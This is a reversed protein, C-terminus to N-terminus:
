TENAGTRFPCGNDSQGSFLSDSVAVCNRVCLARQECESCHSPISRMQELQLTLETADPQRYGYSFLNGCSLSRLNDCPSIRGDDHVFLRNVCAECGMSSFVDEPNVTPRIPIPFCPRKERIISLVDVKEKPRLVQAGRQGRGFPLAFAIRLEKIHTRDTISRLADALEDLFLDMEQSTARSVVTNIRCDTHTEACLRLMHLASAYATSDGTISAMTAERGHLSVQYLIHSGFADEILTLDRWYRGTTAVVPRAFGWEKHMQAILSCLPAFHRARTPEGGTFVVYRLGQSALAKVAIGLADIDVYQGSAPGSDSICFQCKYPCSLTTSFTAQSVTPGTLVKEDLLAIELAHNFQQHKTGSDILLGVDRMTQLLRAVDDRLCRDFQRSVSAQDPLRDCALLVAIQARDLEFLNGESDRCIFLEPGSQEIRCTAINITSM